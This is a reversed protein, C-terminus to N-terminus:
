NSLMLIGEPPPTMVGTTSDPLDAGCLSPSPEAPSDLGSPSGAPTGIVKAAAAAQLRTLPLLVHGQFWALRMVGFLSLAWAGGLAAFEFAQRHRYRQVTGTLM